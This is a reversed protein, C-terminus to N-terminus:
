KFGSTRGADRHHTQGGGRQALLFPMMPPTVSIAFRIKEEVMYQLIDYYEVIL